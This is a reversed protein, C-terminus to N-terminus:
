MCVPHFFSLVLTAINHRLTDIDYRFMSAM